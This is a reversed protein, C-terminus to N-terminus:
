KEKGAANDLSDASFAPVEAAEEEGNSEPELEEVTFEGGQQHLQKVRPFTARRGIDYSVYLILVMFIGTCLLFIKKQNRRRVKM